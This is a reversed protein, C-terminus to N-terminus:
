GFLVHIHRPHRLSRGRIVPPPMEPDLRLNPLRDLVANLANTMEIRALHQGICVHPGYGFGFHRTRPRFVNFKHPEPYHRPDRGAVGFFLEVFSGAPIHVGGITVDRTTERPIVASPGDWRLAEEIAAPVLSRNLRVADLQDPNTLLAALLTSTQRFTTDGGANILQRLFSIIVDDPLRKGDAEAQLLVSVLDTDQTGRRYDIMHQFYDGLKRSAEKAHALYIGGGILMQAVALRHFTKAENDPLGLQRYIVQFPYHHTLDEVLDALGRCEIKELLGNIVPAVIDQGWKMITRPLFAAQFIKRYRGHVPPDMVSITNGFTIKLSNEFAPGNAFTEPDAAAATVEDYGLIMFERRGPKALSSWKTDGIVDAYRGEIVPSKGCLATLPGYVDEFDGYLDDAAQFPDFNPDDFDQLRPIAGM